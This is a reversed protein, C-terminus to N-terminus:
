KNKRKFRYGVALKAKTLNLRYKNDYDLDTSYLGNSYTLSVYFQNFNYGLGLLFDLKYLMPNAPRYSDDELTIKKNVLGVGPMVNITASINEPLKFYSIFGALVGLAAGQYRKINGQENFYSNTSESLISTKASFYDFGGFVGLGGTIFIDKHREESFGAKLLAYSFEIDDLTFLYNFGFSVSRVDSRFVFPEDFDNKATFGKYTQLYVNAFHRDELITTGQLDFRTTEEKNPNKLNFGIDVIVKKNAFGLGLGHRNNPVFRAKSDDNKISFKNVKFNTFLRISYNEIDRDILLEDLDDINQANITSSAFYIGLLLFVKIFIAKQFIIQKSM